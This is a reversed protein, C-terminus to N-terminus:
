RAVGGLDAADRAGDVIEVVQADRAAEDRSYVTVGWTGDRYLLATKHEKGTFRDWRLLDGVATPSIGADDTYYTVGDRHTDFESFNFRLPDGGGGPPCSYHDRRTVDLREPTAPCGEGEFDFDPFVYRLGAPGTAPECTEIADVETGDWCTAPTPDSTPDSTPDATPDSSPQTTRDQVPTGRDDASTTGDDGLLLVAAAAGGGLVLLLAVVLAVVAGRRRGAPAHQQGLPEGPQPVPAPVAQTVPGRYAPPQSPTQPPPPPPPVYPPPPPGAM